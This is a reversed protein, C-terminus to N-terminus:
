KSSTACRSAGKRGQLEYHLDLFAFSICRIGFASLWVGGWYDVGFRLNVFALGFLTVGTLMWIMQRGYLSIRVAYKDPLTDNVVTDLLSLTSLVLLALRSLDASVSEVPVLFYQACVTSSYSMAVLLYIALSMFVRSFVQRKEM